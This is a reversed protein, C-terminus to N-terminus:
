PISLHPKIVLTASGNRIVVTYTGTLLYVSTVWSGDPNLTTQGVAFSSSQDGTQWDNYDFIYLTYDQPRTVQTVVLSGATPYDQNVTKYDAGGFLDSPSQIVEVDVIRIDTGSDYLEVYDTGTTTPVYTAYYRGSGIETVTLTDPPTLNDRTFIIAFDSQVRGTVAVGGSALRFYIYRRTSIMAM